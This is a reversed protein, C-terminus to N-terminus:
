NVGNINVNFIKFFPLVNNISFKNTPQLMICTKKQKIGLRPGIIM